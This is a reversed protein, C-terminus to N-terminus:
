QDRFQNPTMAYYKKFMKSFYQPNQYGLETTIEYIKKNTNKLLYLAREMKMRIIYDGLSEGTMLKYVKSLYVPHLYIRDAIMKVSTDQGLENLVLEQVQRIIYSKTNQDNQSFEEKLKLMMRISWSKLKDLSHIMSQDLLLDFGSDDLKNILHGQKRATYIYANTVSLFVEYLHERSFRTKELEDFVENVKQEAAEWQNSELLHILTPPKYLSELALPAYGSDQFQDELFVVSNPEGQEIRYFASLCSRYALSIHNPFEFWESMVISLDGKLYLSVNEQFIEVVKQLKNRRKDGDDKVESAMLILCDHPAKGFWVKFHHCFVEEAINGVAFEMLALSQPDFKTFSRGVHILMMVAEEEVQLPIEYHRLKGQITDNSLRRGLILDHMLNSRLISFDAKRHYMVEHYKDSQVWEDKLSEMANLITDMLEEDNVPKLIYNYAQLQIAKRAYIFDSHGTLLICKTHPWKKRIEEILQLGDMEPMRIDTVVIDISQEELLSLAEIASAAQYVQEVGIEKWPITTALSETVYSEDDVLLVEIVSIGEEM